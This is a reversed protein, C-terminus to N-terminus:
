WCTNLLILIGVHLRAQCSLCFRLKGTITIYCNQKDNRASHQLLIYIHAIGNFNKQSDLSPCRCCIDSKTFTM